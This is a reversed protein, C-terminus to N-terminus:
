TFSPPGSAPFSVSERVKGYRRLILEIGGAHDTQLQLEALSAAATQFDLVAGFCAPLQTKRWVRLVPAPIKQGFVPSRWGYEGGESLEAQEGPPIALVAAQGIDFCGPGMRVTTEGFHWFQELMRPSAGTVLDCVFM